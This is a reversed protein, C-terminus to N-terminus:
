PEKTSERQGEATAVADNRPVGLLPAIRAIVRGAVPASTYGATAFGSTDKTGKPEDLMVFVLYQPAEIPFVGCFSSILSKRAYRGGVAKEATGTKGGIDYGDVAANRGTGETIVLRMLSRMTASTKESIVREGEQPKDRKLFTPTIRTGGNVVATAAAAFALPSVSIGHGFSITATEVDKWHSPVLPAASEPLETKASQLLGMRKLFVRQREPGARMAIQATGVNSSEAFVHAGTLIPGLKHSDEIDYRGIKVPKGVNFTEDLRITREEVAEAFSFIKFISGLEYVDQTMRNRAAADPVADRQDPEFNPLSVLALVEGTHVNMVIGGAAKAGFKAQGDAVERALAYQIRMDMSLGVPADSTKLLPDLGLELGSVGNDDIDVQGVAHSVARGGPYYRRYSSEFTLGPLGLQMVADQEAPTLARKVAVYGRESSFARALRAEDTGTVAALDHAATVPLEAPRAYLDRVPLDRAILVGNRDVLDARLSLSRDSGAIAATASGFLVVDILRACILAFAFACFIAALAIRGRVIALPVANERM